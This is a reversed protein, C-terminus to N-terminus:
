IGPILEHFLKQYDSWLKTSDQPSYHYERQWGWNHWAEDIENNGCWLVICPHHRLRQVQYRIEEEVNKLFHEDGPYMAGAFMFDQWIMIGYQDCLDYFEDDEYIGGGWVRLMNIHAEKAEKLLKRYLDLKGARPSFSECPIWNAGKMFTPHGNVTFYFSQGISDPKTILKVDWTRGENEKEEKKEDWAEWHIPKWIGCTVLRPGWEWGYQYQAKRSYMRNNEGSLPIASIAALSDDHRAASSFLIRLENGQKKLLNKVDAKWQRFMNDAQLILQDNLYVKAYTDLGDFVLTINKKSLLQPDPAFSTKYEWDAKEVWQVKKENDRYFPDPILKNALLDTHITGPVEAKYWKTEGPKHFQWSAKFPLDM